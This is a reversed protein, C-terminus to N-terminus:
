KLGRYYDMNVKRDEWIRSKRELFPVGEVDHLKDRSKVAYSGSIRLVRVKSEKSDAHRVRVKSNPCLISKVWILFNETGLISLFPYHGGERKATGYCGDGDIYGAIFALEHEETLGTPPQLTLSKRATINFNELLDGCIKDSTVRMTTTGKSAGRAGYHYVAAGGLSDALRAVHGGDSETLTLDLKMQGSNSPSTICGDAAILGAWYSNEVTPVSFYDHDISRQRNYLPTVADLGANARYRNAEQVKLWPIEAKIKSWDSGSSELLIKRQQDTM